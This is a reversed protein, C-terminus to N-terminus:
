ILGLRKGARQLMQFRGRSGKNTWEPEDGLWRLQVYVRALDLIQDFDTPSGNPWRARQYDLELLNTFDRPWGETLTALDVEGIAIAATEWDVPRVVGRQFLINHPYYEGHIVTAQRAALSASAEEWRGCLINLWPFDRRWPGALQVTRRAWGLYYKADYTTLFHVPSTAVRAEHMAHFRGIWRAAARMVRPSLKGVSMSRKLYELILWTSGARRDAYSGYFNPATVQSPQLVHRYVQVEYALGGRQGYSVSGNGAAYKCFIALRSGDEFQCRVIECPFTTAYRTERSLSTPRGRGGGNRAFVSTLGRLLTRDDPFRFSSEAM